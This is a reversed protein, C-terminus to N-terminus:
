NVIKKFIWWFTETETNGKICGYIVMNQSALEAASNFQSYTVRVGEYMKYHSSLQAIYLTSFVFLFLLWFGLLIRFGITKYKRRIILLIIGFILTLLFFTDTSYFNFPYILNQFDSHEIYDVTDTPILLILTCHKVLQWFAWQFNIWFLFILFLFGVVPVEFLFSLLGIWDQKLSHLIYKRSKYLIGIGLNM